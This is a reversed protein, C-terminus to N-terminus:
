ETVKMVGRMLIHHGPFTCVFPYDGAKAPATFELEAEGRHDILKTSAIIKDSQPVWQLEFGKAGLQMAALGVEDAAGPQVIVFNHPMFDPNVFTLKIKKGAKVSFEKIAFHLKEVVTAIRVETFEDTDSIVGSKQAVEAKEEEIAAPGNKTPDATFWHHQVTNAAIRAHVAPSGLLAALLEPNRVNHQQHLWLAELLHHADEEKKPDFKKMWEKCAAIVEGTDRASLEVRARQRVGDVRHELAELLKPIPAGAIEVPAQLPRDKAIMRYIRGHQHDRNPDRVNHQMHGIIVNHWDAIYLAGDSGFQADTPRFNKDSSSLLDGIPEGWVEGPKTTTTVTKKDAGRGETRTQVVGGDRNLEYRKIGLFGITNCILFEQQMEEPFNDSSVIQNAPVPRVEKELLKYMRFGNGEPRVQFTNGGTGDNAYHYGWYDFSIGHPNPSNGAHMTITYRRPDFRYMASAGTSLSPGWPHEINNHLFIGSQWYIAGDPGYILNNASHHTDASGIGQLYVERVDAVDDGDTDKLFIIDPQSAVLVGGNWFEFGLPNHVKAFTIVKDAVGDRNEDPLILLRDNMPKLPEWKPYTMWAAAWLRGKSDVNLQVPNVLEPFMKEDAFLNVEMGEPMSMKSIGEQGSIYELSGEKEASSSASGGGVNSKVPVPGPVNSDDVKYNEGKIAAWILPDRNDTMIDLMVLEHQLVEFNTQDDTFKLSSRGGWVDNGDVARYRNYWHWNKELVAARLPEIAPSASVNEGTLQGAIIEALHRNGEETLHIGNITQPTDVTDYLKKTAEFLEVFDTKKAEAVERIAAAYLALRANNASGDPLNPSKLNEHAIPSFLVIRPAEKGNPQLARYRDIMEGLDKKFGEIGAAGEFSENYGFLAFIVDAKVLKLYDEDSSFGSNRPRKTVTDGPFALNRFVLNKDSNEHQLLAEMWGHVQLRDALTNGIVAVHDGKKFELATAASTLCAGCTAGFFALKWLKISSKPHRFM